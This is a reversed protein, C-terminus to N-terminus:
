KKDLKPDYVHVQGCSPCNSRLGKFVFQVKCKGCTIILEMNKYKKRVRYWRIFEPLTFLVFVVGAAIYCIINLIEYIDM